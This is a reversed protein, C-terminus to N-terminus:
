LSQYFDALRRAVAADSWVEQMFKRSAAGVALRAEENILMSRIKDEVEAETRAVLWPLDTDAQLGFFKKIADITERSLGAVTPKGMSLGELSSLGYYGEIHDFVIHAIRKHRLTMDQTQISEPSTHLFFVPLEKALREMVDRIVHINKLISHTASQFVCFRKDKGNSATLSADTARPLYRVDNIPVCNPFFEARDYFPKYAEALDPTACLLPRGINKYTEAMERVNGREAPTGHIHHVVKKGKTYDALHLLRPGSELPLEITFNDDVKHFHIVDADRLLADAEDGGDFIDMVDRPFEFGPMAQTNVLRARHPTHENIARILNYVAGAPDTNTVHVIKM